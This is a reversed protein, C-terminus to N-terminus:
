KQKNQVTYRCYTSSKDYLHPLKSGRPTEAVSAQTVNMKNTIEVRPLFIKDVVFRVM